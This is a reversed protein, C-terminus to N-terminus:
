GLNLKRQPRESSKMGKSKTTPLQLCNPHGQNFFDKPLIHRLVLCYNSAIPWIKFVHQECGRGGRLRARSGALGGVALANLCSPFLPLSPPAPGPSLRRAAAGSGARAAGRRGGTEAEATREPGPSVWRPSAAQPRLCSGGSRRFSFGSAAAARALSHGLGLLRLRAAPPPRAPAGPGLGPSGPPAFVPAGAAALPAGPAPLSPDRSAQGRLRVRPPVGGLLGAVAGSGQLGLTRRGMPPPQAPAGRGRRQRRKGAGGGGGGPAAEAAAVAAEAEARPGAM